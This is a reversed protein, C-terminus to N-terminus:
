PSSQGQEQVITEATARIQEMTKLQLAGTRAANFVRNHEANFGSLPLYFVESAGFFHWSHVRAPEAYHLELLRGQQRLDEITSDSLGVGHAYSTVRPLEAFVAEQLLDYEPMGPLLRVQQGDWYLDIVSAEARFVPVFWLADEVTLAVGAWVVILVFIVFWVALLLLSPGRRRMAREIDRESQAVDRKM